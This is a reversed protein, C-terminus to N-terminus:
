MVVCGPYEHIVTKTSSYSGSSLVGSSLSEQRSRKKTKKWQSRSSNDSSGNYFSGSNNNSSSNYFSNNRPRAETYGPDSPESSTPSPTATVSGGRMRVGAPPPAPSVSPRPTSVASEHRPVEPFAIPRTRLTPAKPPEVIRVRPASAPRKKVKKQKIPEPRPRPKPRFYISWFIM